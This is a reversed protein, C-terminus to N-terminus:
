RKRVWVDVPSVTAEPRLAKAHGDVFAFNAMESHASYPACPLMPRGPGLDVGPPLWM